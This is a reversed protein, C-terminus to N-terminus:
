GGLPSESSSPAPGTGFGFIGGLLGETEREVALIDARIEELTRMAVPKYFCRNFSVEYGIKVSKPVYWADPAYPLVERTLFGEIGGQEQLPIQETDRLETDAEYEVIRDQSGRGVAYLGRIPDAGTGPRHMRRVVPEAREDREALATQLLRKRKVTLKAGRKSMEEKVAGLCVNFDLHPGPGRADAVHDVANALPEEKADYCAEFFQDCRKTSLDVALRLPREM